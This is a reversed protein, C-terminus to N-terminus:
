PFTQYSSPIVVPAPGIGLTTTIRRPRTPAPPPEDDVLEGDLVEPEAECEGEARKALRALAAALVSAAVPPAPEPEPEPAAPLAAAPLDPVPHGADVAQVLSAFWGALDAVPLGLRDSLAVALAHGVKELLPPGNPTPPLATPNSLDLDSLTATVAQAAHGDPAMSLGLHDTLLMFLRDSVLDAWKEASQTAMDLAKTAVASAAMAHASRALNAVREIGEPSTVRGAAVEQAAHAALVDVTRISDLITEWVPRTPSNAMLTALTVTGAAREEAVPRGQHPGAYAGHLNCRVRGPLAWRKCPEGTRKSKASCRLPPPNRRRLNAM